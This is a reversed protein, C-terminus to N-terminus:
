ENMWGIRHSMEGEDPEKAALWQAVWCNISDAQEVLDTSDCAEFKKGTLAEV